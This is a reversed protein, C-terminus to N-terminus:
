EVFYASILQALDKPEVAERLAKRKDSIDVGCLHLFCLGLSLWDDATTYPQGEQFFPSRFKPTGVAECLGDENDLLCSCDLDNLVLLGSPQVIFNSPKIDRHVVGQQHLVTVAEVAERLLSSLNDRVHAASLPEGQGALVLGALSTPVLCSRADDTFYVDLVEGIMQRLHPCGAQDIVQHLEYEIQVSKRSSIKIIHEPHFNHCSIVMSHDAHALVKFEGTVLPVSTFGDRSKLVVQSIVPLGHVQALKQVHQVLLAFGPSPASPMLDFLVPRSPRSPSEFMAVYRERHFLWNGPECNKEPFSPCIVCRAIKSDAAFSLDVTFVAWLNIFYTCYKEFPEHADPLMHTRIVRALKGLGEANGNITSRWRKKGENPHDAIGNVLTVIDERAEPQKHNEKRFAIHPQGMAASQYVPLVHQHFPVEQDLKEFVNSVDHALARLKLILYRLGILAESISHPLPSFIFETSSTTSDEWADKDALSSVSVSTQSRSDGSFSREELERIRKAMEERERLLQEILADKDGEM